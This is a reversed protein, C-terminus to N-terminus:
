FEGRDMRLWGDYTSYYYWLYLPGALLLNYLSQYLISSIVEVKVVGGCIMMLFVVALSNILTGVVVAVIGVLLNEKFVNGQTKGIIYGTLGKALVNVGIFRGVYLDELLGCLMGYITGRKEGTFLAYFVVFILVLDPISGKISYQNFFTSQVFIALFPLFALIVYRM